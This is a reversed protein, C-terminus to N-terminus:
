QSKRNANARLVSTGERTEQEAVTYIADPTAELREIPIPDGSLDSFGYTGEEIKQLARDIAAIRGIDHAILDGDNDLITLRQGDDEYERAEGSSRANIDTEETERTAALRLLEKRLKTLQERKREIFARDFREANRM